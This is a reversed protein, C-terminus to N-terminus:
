SKFLRERQHLFSALDVIVVISASGTSSNRKFVVPIEFKLKRRIFESVPKVRLVGDKCIIAGNTVASM